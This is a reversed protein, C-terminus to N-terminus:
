SQQTWTVALKGSTRRFELQDHAEALQDISFIGGSVPQLTQDALLLKINQLADQILEPRHDAIRLMNVGLVAQSQAMLLIPLMFGMDWVLKLTALQGGRRGAREAAGYLVIRGGPALLKMDRKFTKGAVANFSVDIKRSGLQEKINEAYGGSPNHIPYDVGAKRLLDMKEASGTTGVVTCSKWKALQVLATGVGGAASHILVTEGVRLNAAHIAAHWATCYQTGLACAQASDLSQPVEVVSEPNCVLYEAYAGFRCMGAVRQNLLHEANQPAEVVEGVFDYGLISPMPPADRYLGRRAMVDAFNLGFAEVRILLEHPKRVPRAVSCIEFAQQSAGHKILVAARMTLASM